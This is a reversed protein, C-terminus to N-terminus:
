SANMADTFLVSSLRRVLNLAPPTVDLYPNLSTLAAICLMHTAFFNEVLQYTCLLILPENLPGLSGGEGREDVHLPGLRPPRGRADVRVADQAALVGEVQDGQDHGEDGEHHVHGVAEVVVVVVEIGVAEVARLVGVHVGVDVAVAGVDDVHHRGTPFLPPPSPIM